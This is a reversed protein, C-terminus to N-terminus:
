KQGGQYCGLFKFMSAQEKAKALTEVINRDKDSGEFDVLFIYKGPDNKMPRSEIRTLNIRADSFFNLMLSLAGPEHKICFAISCKNGVRDAARRSLVVFRTANSEHDEINEKMVDLGYLKACLRSAIAGSTELRETPLMQAAGATDYFPKPNLKNASVFNRCQALAQPHSYVVRLDPLNTGPLALLCHHIPIRIEGVIMLESIILLDNVQSVSGELSNEVPVIGFDLQGTEVDAFIETFERCPIPVLAPDYALAAVESYAGHEGQFGILGLREGQIRKSEEMVTRYLKEAFDPSLLSNSYSRVNAIIMRERKWECVAHKLKQTRLALEMRQNLLSIIRYDILDIEKRLDKLNM